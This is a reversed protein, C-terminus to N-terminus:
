KVKPPEHDIGAETLYRDLDAKDQDTLQKYQTSFEALTEGPLVVATRLAAMFGPREKKNEM